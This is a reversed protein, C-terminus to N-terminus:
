SSLCAGGSESCVVRAHLNFARAYDSENADAQNMDVGWLHLDILATDSDYVSTSYNADATLGVCIHCAGHSDIM